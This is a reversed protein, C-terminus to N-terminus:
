QGFIEMLKIIFKRLNELHSVIEKRAKEPNKGIVAKAIAEHEPIAYGIRKEMAAIGVKLRHWQINLKSILQQARNNGAATFLLSHFRRDAALWKELYVAAEDEGAPTVKGLKKMEAVISELERSQVDTIRQAAKWAVNGEVLEKLEFIETIDEPTLSYIRRIRKTTIILGECELINLAERVPTRSIDYKGALYTETVVSGPKLSGNLIDDVILRYANEFLNNKKM